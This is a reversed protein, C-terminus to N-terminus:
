GEVDQRFKCILCEEPDIKSYLVDCFIIAYGYQMKGLRATCPPLKSLFMNSMKKRDDRRLSQYACRVSYEEARM